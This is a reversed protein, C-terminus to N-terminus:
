HYRQDQSQRETLVPVKHESLKQDQHLDGAEVVHLRNRHEQGCDLVFVPVECYLHDVVAELLHQSADLFVVKLVGLSPNLDNIEQPLAVIVFHKVRVRQECQKVCKDIHGVHPCDVLPKLAFVRRRVSEPDSQDASQQIRQLPLYEGLM